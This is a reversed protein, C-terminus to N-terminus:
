LSVSHLLFYSAIWFVLVWICEIFLEKWKMTSLPEFLGMPPEPEHRQNYFNLFHKFGRVYFHVAYNVSRQAHIVRPQDRFLSAYFVTGALITTTRLLLPIWVIFGLFTWTIVTVVLIFAYVCEILFYSFTGKNPLEIEEDIELIHKADSEIKEYVTVLEEENRTSVNISNNEQLIDRGIIKEKEGMSAYNGRKSLEEKALNIAEITYDKSNTQVMDNLEESSLSEIRQKIQDM